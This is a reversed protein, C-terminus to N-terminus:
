PGLRQRGVEEQGEGRQWDWGWRWSPLVSSQVVGMGAHHSMGESQHRIPVRWKLDLLWDPGGVRVTWRGRPRSGFGTWSQADSWEFRWQGDSTWEFMTRGMRKSPMHPSWRLTWSWPRSPMWVTATQARARGGLTASISAQMWGWDMDTSVTARHTTVWARRRAQPWRELQVDSRLACSVPGQTAGGVWVSSSTWDSWGMWDFGLQHSMDPVLGHGWAQGSLAHMPAAPLWTQGQVFGGDWTVSPM